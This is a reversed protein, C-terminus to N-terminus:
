SMMSSLQVCANQNIHGRKSVNSLVGSRHIQCPPNRYPEHMVIYGALVLSFVIKYYLIHTM